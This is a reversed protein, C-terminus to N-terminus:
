RPTTPGPRSWPPWRTAGATKGAAVSGGLAIVLPGAGTGRWGAADLRRRLALRADLHIGVFHALPVYVDTWESADFPSGPPPQAGAPARGRGIAAWADRGLTTFPPPPAWGATGM